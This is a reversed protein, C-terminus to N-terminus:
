ELFVAHAISSTIEDVFLYDRLFLYDRIELSNWLICITVMGFSANKKLFLLLSSM